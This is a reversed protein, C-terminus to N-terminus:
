NRVKEAKLPSLPKDESHSPSIDKEGGRKLLAEGAEQIQFPKMTLYKRLDFVQRLIGGIFIKEITNM